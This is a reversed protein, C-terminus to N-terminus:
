EYDEHIECMYEDYRWLAKLNHRHRVIQKPTKKNQRYTAFVLFSEM